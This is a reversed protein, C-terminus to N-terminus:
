EIGFGRRYLEVLAVEPIEVPSQINTKAKHHALVQQFDDWRLTNPFLETDDFRLAMIRGEPNDKATKLVDKWAYVGLRRFERFLDRAPGVIVDSLRSCARIRMTEPDNKGQSVYWLLRGFPRFPSNRASRYYVSEPNLALESDAAWLMRAALGSDFLDTAWGPRIPVIYNPIGCGLIKAPWLLHEVESAVVPDNLISEGTLSDAVRVLEDCSLNAESLTSRIVRSISNPTDVVRLSLKVWASGMPVFGMDRLAEVWTPDANPEEFVVAKSESRCAHEIISAMLTRFLTSAMRTSRISASLRFLPIKCVRGPANELAYCTIPVPQGPDRSDDAVVFCEYRAPSSLFLALKQELQRKKEGSRMDQFSSALGGHKGSVRSKRIKTGALRELQYARENRLEEFQGILQSPRVVSLGYATYFEESRGLLTEDRTVFVTAESAVARALQRIDAADRENKPEGVLGRVETEITQFDEATCELHDFTKAAKLRESRRLQDPQRQIENFLEDTICLRVLPRLWDAVIGQSEEAGNRTPDDLDYFVNADLVVDLRGDDSPGLLGFLNAQPNPLWYYTLETGDRGKGQKQDLAVFGLKPWFSWTPFDRRCYLSIGLDDKTSNRLAEILGRAVGEGRHVDKVCLHTLRVKRREARFYILYGCCVKDKLAVIIQRRRARDLFAGGPYFGLWDSNSRWLRKVDELYPSKDDIAEIRIM